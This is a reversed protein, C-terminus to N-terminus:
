SKGNLVGYIKEFGDKLFDQKTMGGVKQLYDEKEVALKILGSIMGWMQFTTIFYNDCNKLEGNKIGKAIFESIRQNIEEGALYIEEFFVDEERDADVNIYELARDFFIPSKKQFETLANCIGFFGEKTSQEGNLAETIVDRLETMSKLAIFSIIEDKNKFYVYLTAKSYGAKLAIDSMTTGDLGNLKFLKEAEGAIRNKHVNPDEKIRRAM